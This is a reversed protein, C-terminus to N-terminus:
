TFEVRIGRDEREEEQEEGKRSSGPKRRGNERNDEHLQQGERAESGQREREELGKIFPPRDGHIDRAMTGAEM